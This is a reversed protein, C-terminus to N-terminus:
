FVCYFLRRNSPKINSFCSKFQSDIDTVRPNYLNRAFRRIFGLRSESRQRRDKRGYYQSDYVMTDNEADSAATTVSIERKSDFCSKNDCAILIEDASLTLNDVNAPYNTCVPVTASVLESDDAWSESTYFERAKENNCLYPYNNLPPFLFFKEVKDEDVEFAIGSTKNRFFFQDKYNFEAEKQFGSLDLGIKKLKIPEELTIKIFKVKDKPVNWRESDDDDGSCEGTTYTVRVEANKTSFYEADDDDSEFGALIKKVDKRNSELMKIQKAKEFEPIRSQAFASICLLSIFFLFAFIKKM